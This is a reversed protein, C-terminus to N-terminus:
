QIYSPSMMFDVVRIYPFLVGLSKANCTQFWDNSATCSSDYLTVHRRVLDVETALWHKNENNVLVYVDSHLWAGSTMITHFRSKDLVMIDVSHSPRSSDDLFDMLLTRRHADVARYPDYMLTPVDGTSASSNVRPPHFSTDLDEIGLHQMILQVKRNLDDLKNELRAVDESTAYPEIAPHPAHATSATARPTRRDPHVQESAPDVTTDNVDEIMSPPGDYTNSTNSNNVASRLSKITVDYSLSGWLYRERLEPSQIIKFHDRCVLKRKDGAFLVTELLYFMCVKVNDEVDTEDFPYREFKTM